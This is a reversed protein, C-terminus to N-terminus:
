LLVLTFNPIGYSSKRLGTHLNGFTSNQDSYEKLMVKERKHIQEKM